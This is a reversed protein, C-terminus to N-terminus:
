TKTYRDLNYYQKSRSWGLCIIIDGPDIPNMNYLATKVTFQAERGSGISQTKINWGFQRGDSRRRVPRVEKVYLKRRDEDKGTIYGVYGMADAFNQVRTKLPLDEIGLSLIHQECERLFGTLDYFTYSKSPEGKKTLGCAYREIVEEAWSGKLAEKKAQKAEGRRFQEFLDVIRLLEKQNGFDSFFDIKILTDLQRSDISTKQRMLFLLDTFTNHQRDKEADGMEAALAFLEDSLGPSIYKVSGVGKSIMRREANFAYEAKSAGFKPPTVQMGNKNAYAIIDAQKSLDTFVNLATTLFELPYHHRLYGCIYGTAGYPDSHNWSFAYSSADSIIQLFPDIVEECKKESVGFHQPVFEIFRQRIEPLLTETGKKKAIARRVNDSEPASYGCFEVLFKMITEQMVIRGSEKALFENLAPIGNDYFIGQAVQDRFSACAPRLLGNGLSLLKFMSFDKAHRRFESVTHDSMLKRLFQRASQSEWQFILTTDDRISKWVSEDELDVSDPTLREIGLLDCTKNIVAINDLGLIDFKVYMLDDLEKMDLM